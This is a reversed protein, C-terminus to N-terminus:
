GQQGEFFDITHGETLTIIAKKWNSRRGTTLGKRTNMRKNKGKVNVTRVDKVVVKFKREVARKIEIKNANELVKFAYKNRDEQAALMKETLIPKIIIANTRMM